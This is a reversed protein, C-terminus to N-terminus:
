ANNGRTWAAGVAICEKCNKAEPYKEIFRAEAQEHTEDERVVPMHHVKEIHDMLEEDTQMMLDSGRIGKTVVCIRCAIAM